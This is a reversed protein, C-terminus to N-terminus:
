PDCPECTISACRSDDDCVNGGADIVVHFPCFFDFGNPNPKRCAENNLVTTSIGQIHFGHQWDSVTNNDLFTNTSFLDFIGRNTNKVNCNKVTVGDFAPIVIGNQGM